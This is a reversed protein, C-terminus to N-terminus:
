FAGINVTDNVVDFVGRQDTALFVDSGFRHSAATTGNYGRQVTLTNNTLNVNTVLMEESGILIVYNGPTSAIAAADSVFITTDTLGISKTSSTLAGGPGLAPSGPLPKMTLTPGGNNALAALLPNIGVRNHNSDGNSIGSLGTGNGILNYSGAANGAVDPDGAASSNGAVITNLLTLTTLTTRNLIGGGGTASVVGSASNGSLTSSSVTM